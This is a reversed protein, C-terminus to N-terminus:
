YAIFMAAWPSFSSCVIPHVSTPTTHWLPFPPVEDCRDLTRECMKWKFDHWHKSTYQEAELFLQSTEKRRQCYYDCSSYLTETCIVDDRALVWGYRNRWGQASKTWAENNTPVAMNMKREKEWESGRERERTKTDRDEKNRRHAKPERHQQRLNLPMYHMNLVFFFDCILIFHQRWAIFLSFIVMFKRRSYLFHLSFSHAFLVTTDIWFWMSKKKNRDSQYFKHEM